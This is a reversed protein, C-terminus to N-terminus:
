RRLLFPATGQPDRTLEAFNAGRANASENSDVNAADVIAVEPGSRTLEVLHRRVQVEKSRIVPNSRAVRVKALHHFRDLHDGGNV